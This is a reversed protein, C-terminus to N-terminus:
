IGELSQRIVKIDKTFSNLSSKIEATSLKDVNEYLKKHGDSINKLGKEALEYKLQVNNYELTKTQVHARALAILMADKKDAFPLNTQFVGLVDNKENENTAKYIRILSGMGDLLTQLPENGEKIMTRVAREQYASTVWKAVIQTISSVADVQKADIKFEPHAKIGGKLADLEKSVSFGNEAALGALTEMYLSVSQQVKILDGYAAKRGLDTAQAVKDAEGTLYPQERSYTDRFRVTLETYTSFKASEAAYDRVEKLNTCATLISIIAVSSIIKISYM